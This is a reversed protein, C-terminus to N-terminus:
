RIPERCPAGHRPPPRRQLTSGHRQQCEVANREREAMQRKELVHACLNVRALAHTHEAPVAAALRREQADQAALLLGIRARHPALRVQAHRAQVLVHRQRGMERHEVHDGFAEAAQAGEHHRIVVGRYVDGLGCALCRELAEPPELMFQFFAVAPAELLPHLEDEGPQTQRGVGDDVRQRAPPAPPHQERPREHRLRVEQEEVLRRVMEVDVRDRPELVEQGVVRARDDEDRVIACEQLPEGGADELDIAPAHRGPRAVVGGEHTPLLFPQRVLGHQLLLEVLFEGLLLDPHPLADLGPARAVFAADACEDRHAGLPSRAPLLGAHHAHLDLGGVWRAAEHELRRLEGLGEAARRDDGRERGADHAAVPHAEDPRVARALRRQQSQEEPFDLGVGALDPRAHVDLDSVVILLALLQIGLRRDEVGDTVAVAADGDVSPGTVHVAVQGVEQKGRLPRTRRYLRQRAALAVAQQERPQERPGGVHEHEVFGGVIQIELRELEELRLQRLEGARQQEDAVVALEEVVRDRARQYEFAAAPDLFVDASVPVPDPLTVRRAHGGGPGSPSRGVAGAPLGPGLRCRSPVRSVAAGLRSVKLSRRSNAPSGPRM